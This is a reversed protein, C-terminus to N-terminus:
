KLKQKVENCVSYDDTVEKLIEICKKYFTHYYKEYKNKHINAYNYIAARTVGLCEHIDRYPANIENICLNSFLTKAIAHKRKKADVKYGTVTEVIEKIAKFRYENYTM